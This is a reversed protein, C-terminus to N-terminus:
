MGGVLIDAFDMDVKPPIVCRVQRGEKLLRNKLKGAASQGVNNDDNDVAITVLRVDNPIVVNGMGSASVTAWVPLGTAIHFALANEIGEAVALEGNEPAYLKIAGGCTAGPFIPSMLKKPKEVQAKCGNGLYTRHISVPRNNADAVMALMVPFNAVCQGNDDYYPLHPHFRLCPPYQDLDIGRAKLYVDVPDGITVSLSEGWTKKLCQRNRAIKKENNQPSIKNDHFRTTNLHKANSAYQSGCSGVLFNNINQLAQYFNWPHKLQLLKIGDGARCNNCFFTGDGNKDDFRFRDKGGCIPCSGHKNTLFSLDIGFYPLIQKWRGCALNKIYHKDLHQTHAALLPANNIIIM